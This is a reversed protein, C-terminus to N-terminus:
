EAHGMFRAIDRLSELVHTADGVHGWHLHDPDVNMHDDLEVQIQKLLMQASETKAMFADVAQKNM